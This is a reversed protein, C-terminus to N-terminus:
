NKGNNEKKGCNCDSCYTAPEKTVAQFVIDSNKPMTFVMIRNDPFVEQLHDKLSQMTNEDFDDGVLKVSLVDGPVLHIKQLEVTDFKHEM